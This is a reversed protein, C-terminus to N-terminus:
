TCLLIPYGCEEVVKGSLVSFEMTHCLVFRAFPKKASLCETPLGHACHKAPLVLVASFVRDSDGLPTNGAGDM